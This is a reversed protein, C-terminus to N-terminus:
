PPYILSQRKTKFLLVIACVSKAIAMTLRISLKLVRMFALAPEGSASGSPKDKKQLSCLLVFCFPKKTQSLRGRRNLVCVCKMHHKVM